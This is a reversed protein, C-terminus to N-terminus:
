CVAGCRWMMLSTVKLLQVQTVPLIKGAMMQRVCDPIIFGRAAAEQAEAKALMASLKEEATREDVAGVSGSDVEKEGEKITSVAGPPPKRRLSLLRGTKADYEFRVGGGGSRPRVSSLACVFVHGCSFGCAVVFVCAWVPGCERAPTRGCASCLLVSLAHLSAPATVRAFFRIFTHLLLLRM